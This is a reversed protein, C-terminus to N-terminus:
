SKALWPSYGVLSKPGHFEGPLFVLTPLWERRWPIKGVWPDLGRRRYIRSQCTPKESSTGGSFGWVYSEDGTALIITPRYFTWYYTTAQQSFCWGHDSSGDQFMRLTESICSGSQEKDPNDRPTTKIAFLRSPYPLVKRQVFLLSM